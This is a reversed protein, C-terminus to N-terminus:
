EKFRRTPLIYPIERLLPQADPQARRLAYFCARRDSLLVECRVLRHCWLPDVPITHGLLSVAGRESTRRLFIIRGRLPAQLDLAWHRPFGRRPPAHEARAAPSRGCRPVAVSWRSWGVDDRLTRTKKSMILYGSREASGFPRHFSGSRHICLLCGCAGQFVSLFANEM